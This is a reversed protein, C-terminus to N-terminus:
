ACGLWSRLRGGEASTLLLAADDLIVERSMDTRVLVVAGGGSRVVALPSSPGEPGCSFFELSASRLFEAKAAM